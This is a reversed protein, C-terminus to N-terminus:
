DRYTEPDLCQLKMGILDMAKRTLVVGGFGNFSEGSYRVYAEQQLWRVCAMFHQEDSSLDIGPAGWDGSTKSVVEYGASDAQISLPEPFSKLLHDFISVVATDFKHIQQDVMLYEEILLTYGDHM